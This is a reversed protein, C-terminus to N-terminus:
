VGEENHMESLQQTIVELQANEDSNCWIIGAIVEVSAGNRILDFMKEYSSSTGCTFYDKNRCLIYVEFVSM